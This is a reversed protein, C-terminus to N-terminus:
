NAPESSQGATILRHLEGARGGDIAKLAEYQELALDREGINLAAEGARYRTEGHGPDHEVARYCARFAEFHHGRESHFRGLSLLAPIFGPSPPAEAYLYDEAFDPFIGAAGLFMEEAEDHRGLKELAFGIGIRAGVSKPLSEITLRYAAIAEEYRGEEMLRDGRMTHFVPDEPTLAWGQEEAAPFCISPATLLLSIFAAFPFLVRVMFVM